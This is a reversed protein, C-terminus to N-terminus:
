RFYYKFDQKGKPEGLLLSAFLSSSEGDVIVVVKKRSDDDWPDLRERKPSSRSQRMFYIRLWVFVKGVICCILNFILILVHHKLLCAQSDQGDHRHQHSDMGYTPFKEQPPIFSAEEKGEKCM